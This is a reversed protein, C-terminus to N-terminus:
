HEEMDFGMMNDALEFFVGMAECLNKVIQSHALKEEVTKAKAMAKLTASLEKTLDDLIKEPDM